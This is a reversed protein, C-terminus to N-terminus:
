EHADFSFCALYSTGEALLGQKDKVVAAVVDLDGDGDIDILASDAIFRVVNLSEMVPRIGDNRWKLWELRGKAYFRHRELVGSGPFSAQNNVVLMEQVGDGDIDHLHIRPSFYIYDEVDAQSEDRLVIFTSAGGYRDDSVWAEEGSANLIQVYGDSNYAVVEPKGPERVAGDAIGFINLNRPLTLREGTTYESGTWKIEYIGPSFLNGPEMRQQRQGLLIRRRQSIDVNRFFWPLGSAVPQLAKGDWELVFSLVKGDTRSFRTVFIEERGNHNLDAADVGIFDRIGDYEALKVWRGQIFHYVFLHNATICTIDAIGDGDVDGATLGKLQDKIMGIGPLRVPDKAAEDKRAKMPFPKEPTVPAAALGESRVPGPATASPAPPAVPVPAVVGPQASGTAAPSFLQTNIQTALENVHAIVEAAQHGTRGFSIVPDDLADASFVRADTSVGSGLMTVSGSVVYDAKTKRALSSINEKKGEATVVVIKGKRELRSTLMDTIGRQLYDLKDAANITFPMVLIRTPTAAWGLQVFNFLVGVALTMVAMLLTCSHGTKVPKRRNM